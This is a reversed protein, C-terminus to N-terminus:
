SELRTIANKVDKRLSKLILAVRKLGDVNGEDELNTRLEEIIEALDFTDGEEVDTYGTEVQNVDNVYVMINDDILRADVQTEIDSIRM